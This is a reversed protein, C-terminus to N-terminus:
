NEINKLEINISADMRTNKVNSFGNIMYKMMQLFYEQGPVDIKQAISAKSNCCGILVAMALIVGIGCSPPVM